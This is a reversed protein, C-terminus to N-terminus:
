HSDDGSDVLNSLRVPRLRPIWLRASNKYHRYNAGFRAQLDSEEVPRVMLHWLFAGSLSFAIVSFSGLYWGVAIGQIIGALAMPNRVFRYPGAIVLKPATATPLPTGHGQTAMTLGSWLGVLSAIIFFAIAFSSQESSDFRPWGLHGELEVIGQPLIWLFVSWFITTQVITWAIASIKGMPTVRITEPSQDATGQITAMALTLGAMGSGVVVVDADVDLDGDAGGRAGIRDPSASM